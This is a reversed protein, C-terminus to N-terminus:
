EWQCTGHYTPSGSGLEVIQWSMVVARRVLPTRDPGRTIVDVPRGPHLRVRGRLEVGEPGESIAQVERGIEVRARIM